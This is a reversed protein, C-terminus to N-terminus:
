IRVHLICTTYMYYVHLIIHIIYVHERQDIIQTLEEYLHKYVHLMCTTYM